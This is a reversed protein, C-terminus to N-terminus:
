GEGGTSPLAGGNNLRIRVAEFANINIKQFDGLNEEAYRMLANGYRIARRPSGSSTTAILKFPTRVTRRVDCVAKFREFRLKLMEQLLQENWVLDVGFIELLTKDFGVKLEIPLFAKIFFGAQMLPLVLHGLEKIAGFKESSISMSSIDLIFFTRNFGDPRAKDLLDKVDADTIKRKFAPQPVLEKLQAIIQSWDDNYTHESRKFAVKVRDLTGVYFLILRSMAVRQTLEADLYRRPNDSIFDVLTQAVSALIWYKVDLNNDLTAYVPFAGSYKNPKPYRCVDVLYYASATKGMGEGAFLLLPKAHWINELLPHEAWREFSENKEKKRNLSEGDLEALEEGFSFDTFEPDNSKLWKYMRDSYKTEKQQWLPRWKPTTSLRRYLEKAASLREDIVRKKHDDPITNFEDETLVREPDESYWNLKNQIKADRLLPIGPMDDSGFSHQLSPLNAPVDVAREILQILTSSISKGWITLGDRLISVDVPDIKKGAVLEHLKEVKEVEFLHEYAKFGKYYDKLDLIVSKAEPLNKVQWLVLINDLMIRHCGAIELKLYIDQFDEYRGKNCDGIFGRIALIPTKQFSSFLEEDYKKRDEKQQQEFEKQQQEFEKQRERRDKIFQLLYTGAWSILGSALLILPSKDGVSSNVFDRIRAWGVTEMQIEFPLNEIILDKSNLYVIQNTYTRWWSDEITKSNLFTIKYVRGGEGSAKFKHTIARKSANDQYGSIRIEGPFTLTFEEDTTMAGNLTLILNVPKNNALVRRPYEIKLYQGDATIIEQLVKYNEYPTYLSTIVWLLTFIVAAFASIIAFGALIYAFTDLIKEQIDGKKSKGGNTAM